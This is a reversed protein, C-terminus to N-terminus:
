ELFKKKLFDKRKLPPLLSGWKFFFSNVRQTLINLEETKRKLDKELLDVKMKMEETRKNSDFLQGAMHKIQSKLSVRKEPTELM